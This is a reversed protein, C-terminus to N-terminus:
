GATCLVEVQKAVIPTIQELYQLYQRAADPSVEAGAAIKETALPILDGAQRALDCSKATPAETAASQTISLAAAGLLFKSQTTSKVSDAFALFRMALQFDGRQKTGNAARFLANGRSLAFQGVLASDEGVALSRHLTVYASDLQGLEAQSQALQLFGHTLTSDLELARKSIALAEEARGKSKLDQAQLVHLEASQPFRELGRTVAVQTEGRVLQTYLLYIRDDKPFRTVGRAAMELAQLPREASRYANSLRLFFTSDSRSLSDTALLKEGASIAAPWRKNAFLITWRLRLLELHDPNEDSARVILPEAKLSNGHEAMTGVIRQVLEINATDTAALRLWMTAARDRDKLADYAKAAGDLAWYSEPVQELVEQATQLVFDARTGANLYAVVLCVRAIASRPYAQIGERAAQIAIDSKGDRLANECRRQPVLQKRADRIAVALQAAAADADRATVVPLPQILRDDRILVLQATVRVGQPTREVRGRIVEDARLKKALTRVVYWEHAVEDDFSARDLANSIDSGKVVEMEKKNVLRQVRGRLEDSVSKGLKGPTAHLTPILMSQTTFEQKQARADAPMATVSVALAVLLRSSIAHSLRV